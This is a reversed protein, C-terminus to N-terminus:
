HHPIYNIEGSEKVEKYFVRVIIKGSKILNHFITIDENSWNVPLVSNWTTDAEIDTNTELWEQNLNFSGAITDCTNWKINYKDFLSIVAKINEDSTIRFNENDDEYVPTTIDYMVNVKAM